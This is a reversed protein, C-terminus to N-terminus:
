NNLDGLENDPEKKLDHGYMNAPYPKVFDKMLAKIQDPTFSENKLRVLFNKETMKLKARLDKGGNSDIWLRLNEYFDSRANQLMVAQYYVRDATPNNGWPLSDQVQGAVQLSAIICFTTLIHPIRQM